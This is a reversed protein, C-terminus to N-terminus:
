SGTLAALLGAVPVEVISGFCWPPVHALYAQKAAALDNFGLMIKPEDPEGSRRLQAVIFASRAGPEPGGYADVAEGDPGITGPIRGYDCLMTTSWRTGDPSTGSRVSGRPAEVVMLLGGFDRVPLAAGRAAMTPRAIPRWGVRWAPAGDPGIEFDRTREVGCQPCRNPRGHECRDLGFQTMKEALTAAAEEEVPEVAAEEGMGLLGAAAAPPRLPAPAAGSLDELELEVGASQMFPEFKVRKGATAAQENTAAFAEAAGKAAEVAAQRAEPDRTDWGMEVLGAGLGIASTWPDLVQETWCEGAEAATTQVLDARIDRFLAGSSFGKNGDSTVTNGTLAFKIDADARKEQDVYVDYGRGTSEVISARYGKPLVIGPVGAGWGERMFRVLDQMWHESGNEGQEIVRLGDALWKAWRQRDLNAGHKAIFPRACPFWAGRAWPRYRGYPTLLVWRGDGPTVPLRGRKADMYYYADESHVYSLWRLDLRRLRRWGGPRPDDELYGVGVGAMIADEVQAAAESRPLLRKRMGPVRPSLRMGTAADYEPAKGQLQEKVWPDGEYLVPLADVFSSRTGLLGNIVGDGRMAEIIEALWYFQGTECQQKAKADDGPEWIRAANYAALPVQIRSEKSPAPPLLAVPRRPRRLLNALQTFLGM